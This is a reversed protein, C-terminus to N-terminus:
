GHLNGLVDPRFETAQDLVIALPPQPRQARREQRAGQALSALDQVLDLGVAIELGEPARRADLVEAEVHAEIRPANGCGRIQDAAVTEREVEPEPPRIV